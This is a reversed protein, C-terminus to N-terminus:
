GGNRKELINEAPLILGDKILTDKEIQLEFLMRDKTESMNAGM